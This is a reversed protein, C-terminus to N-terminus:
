YIMGEWSPMYSLIFCNTHTEPFVFFFCVFCFVFGGFGLKLLIGKELLTYMGGM